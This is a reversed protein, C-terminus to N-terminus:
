RTVEQMPQIQNEQETQPPSQALLERVHQLVRRATLPALLVGHRSHGTAVLVNRLTPHRGVLPLGDPTTPRFGVLHQIQPVNAADGFLRRATVRLSCAADADPSTEDASTDRITAGVYLGDPRGLAYQSSGTQPPGYLTPLDSPADLLLAQGQVARVPLDFKDSWAGCAVVAIRAEITACDTHIVVGEGRPEIRDVRAREVPLGHLAANRVSPPHVRGESAHFRAAQLHPLPPLCAQGDPDDNLHRADEPSFGVRFLGERFGVSQGSVAELRRAFDPWLSLSQNADAELLTGSLKEGSPSLLGAGARWAAGPLDADLVLVEEGAQHLEFAICAGILGGGVVAIM